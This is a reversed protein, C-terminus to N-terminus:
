AAERDVSVPVQYGIASHLRQRNYFVALYEFIAAEAEPRTRSRDLGPIELKMTAFFSEAPANDWCNGRRSMSQRIGYQTLVERFPESAYQSGQDSHFILGDNPRQADLAMKLAEIIMITDRTRKMSWGVIERSRLCLVIALYLVGEGTPIETIDGVWAQNLSYAGSDFSREILNPSAGYSTSASRSVKRHRRKLGILGNLRMLRAVRRRGCQEGQKKLSSLVRPSGYITRSAHYIEQIKATLNRDELTHASEKRSCWAYYGARSVDLLRCMMGVGFSGVNVHIVAYKV